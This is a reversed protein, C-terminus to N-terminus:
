KLSIKHPFDQAPECYRYNFINPFKKALAIESESPNFLYGNNTSQIKAILNEMGLSERIEKSESPKEVPLVFAQLISVGDIYEAAVPSGHPIYGLKLLKPISDNNTKLIRYDSYVPSPM